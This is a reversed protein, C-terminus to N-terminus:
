MLAADARKWNSGSACPRGKPRTVWTEWPEADPDSTRRVVVIPPLVAEWHAQGLQALAARCKAKSTADVGLAALVARVTAVSVKIQAGAQTRYQTSVGYAHALDALDKDDDAPKSAAKASTM